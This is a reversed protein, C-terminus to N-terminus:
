KRILLKMLVLVSYLTIIIIILHVISFIWWPIDLGHSYLTGETAGSIISIFCGIIWTYQIYKKTHLLANKKYLGSFIVIVWTIVVLFLFIM